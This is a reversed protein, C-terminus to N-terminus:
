TWLGSAVRKSCPASAALRVVEVLQDEPAILMFGGLDFDLAVKGAYRRMDAVHLVWGEIMVTDGPLLHGAKLHPVEGQRVDEALRTFPNDEDPPALKPTEWDPGRTLAGILFTRGIDSM